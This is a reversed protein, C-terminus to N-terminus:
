RLPLSPRRKEASWQKQYRIRFTRQTIIVNVNVRPIELLELISLLLTGQFIGV